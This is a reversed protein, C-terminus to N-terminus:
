GSGERRGIAIETEGYCRREAEVFGTPWAFRSASAEEVVVLAGIDLWGGDRASALAREALTRGYPPDCFALSFRETPAARGLRAADRRFIRTCGELGLAEINHRIAGRAGVDDDVFVAHVTGRSLAELGMAGTGAFLDLVRAGAVPDGYAHELVNFIAGRLRDSTPRTSPGHPSALPRGRLSGGVIRM